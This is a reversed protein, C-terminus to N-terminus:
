NIVLRRAASMGRGELRLIYVGRALGRLDLNVTGTRDAVLDLRAVRRGAADWTSLVVPGPAPLSYRVRAVGGALPNPSVSVGVPAEAAGASMIAGERRPSPGVSIAVKYRWMERTKNGKLAFFVGSGYHILDAGYKVMRRRGTTGMTPMTDLEVWSDAMPSCKWFQQSNGGKLAYLEDAFWAGSSGDKSKKMRLRGSHLGLVPMGRLATRDWTDGTLDYTFMYHYGTSKDYYRAQHAYITNDGDYVMFSGKKWKGKPGPPLDPLTYWQSTETNFRYFETKNGKMLYVYGTDDRVIFEMDTGGKVRKRKPGEPVDPLVYWTDEPIDYRWFQCTNYGKTMYLNGSGDCVGKSGKGPPKQKRHGPGSPPVQALLAWEGTWVDYSYFDYTKYGKMAYVLRTAPDIALWGGRKVAKGSPASPMSDVEAWGPPGPPADVVLFHEPGVVDNTPNEDGPLKTTATVTYNGVESATWFDDDFEVIRVEGVELAPVEESELFVAQQFGDRIEVEVDFTETFDGVNVVRVTPWVVGNLLVKGAPVLIGTVGVDHRPATVTVEGYATDNAREEDDPLSTFATTQLLGLPGATWSPFDVTDVAGPAVTVDAVTEDYGGDIQFTAPFTEEVTGYNRVVARPTVVRGTGLSGSPEIITTVGVDHVAPDFDYVVKVEYVVPAVHLQGTSDGAMNVRYQFYRDGTTTHPGIDTSDVDVGVAVTIPGQWPNLTCQGATTGTRVFFDLYTSEPRTADWVFWEWDSPGGADLISSVLQGNMSYSTDLGNEWWHFMHGTAAVIDKTFKLGGPQKGLNEVEVWHCGGPGYFDPDVVVETFDGSEEQHFYGIKQFGGVVDARGDIDMDEAIAADAYEFATQGTVIDHRTYNAGTGDNEYWIIACLSRPWVWERCVLLDRDNDGDFDAIWSGDSQGASFGTGWTWEFVGPNAAGQNLYVQDTQLLDLYGDGNLDGLKARYRRGEAISEPTFTMDGNNRWLLLPKMGNVIDLDGDNDVDGVDCFNTDGRHNWYGIHTRTFSWGGNNKFWYMNDGPVVIDPRGDDDFDGVWTLCYKSIDTAMDVQQTFSVQTGGNEILRNRYVRVIDLGTIVGALDYDGDGDFDAPRIANHGDINDNDEVVHETWSTIVGQGSMQTTPVILGSASYSVSDASRFATGFDDVPGAVGPGGTWDTQISFAQLLLCTSLIVSVM